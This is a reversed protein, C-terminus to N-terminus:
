VLTFGLEEIDASEDLQCLAASLCELISGRRAVRGGQNILM